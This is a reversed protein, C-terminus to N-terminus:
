RRSLATDQAELRVPCAALAGCTPCQAAGRLVQTLSKASAVSWGDCVPRRLVPRRLVPRRLVPRRLVPRRM